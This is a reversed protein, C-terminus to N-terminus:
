MAPARRRLSAPSAAQTSEGTPQQKQNSVICSWVRSSIRYFEQLFKTWFINVIGVTTTVQRRAIELMEWLHYDKAAFPHYSSNFSVSISQNFTSGVEVVLPDHLRHLTKFFEQILIPVSYFFLRM